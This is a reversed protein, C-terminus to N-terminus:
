TMTLLFTSLSSVEYESMAKSVARGSVLQQSHPLNLSSELSLNM